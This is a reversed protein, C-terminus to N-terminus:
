LKVYVMIEMFLIIESKLCEQMGKVKDDRYIKDSFQVKQFCNKMIKMKKLKITMINECYNQRIEM